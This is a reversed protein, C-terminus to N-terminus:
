GALMKPMTTTRGYEARLRTAELITRANDVTTKAIGEIAKSRVIERQVAKEDAIDISGLRELEEFLVENLRGLDTKKDPMQEGKGVRDRM